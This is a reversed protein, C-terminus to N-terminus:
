SKKNGLKIYLGTESLLMMPRIDAAMIKLAGQQLYQSLQHVPENFTKKKM